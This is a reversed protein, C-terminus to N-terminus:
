AIYAIVIIASSADGGKGSTATMARANYNAVTSATIACAGGAGGGGGLSTQGAGGDGGTVAITGAGGGTAYAV